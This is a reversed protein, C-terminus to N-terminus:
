TLMELVLLDQERSCIFEYLAPGLTFLRDIADSGEASEMFFNSVTIVPFM